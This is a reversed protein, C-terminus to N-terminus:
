TNQKVRNQKTKIKFSCRIKASWLRLRADMKQAWYQCKIIM